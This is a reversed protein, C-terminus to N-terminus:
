LVGADCPTARDSYPRISHENSPISIPMWVAILEPAGITNTWTANAVDVTNGVPPLKGDAGPKRVGSWAVDYAKEQMEGNADVWGKVIQYRDLNAGIPDKLAAVLFTPSKGPQAAGLNGGMPVGKGYGAIAPSRTVADADEFDFGGFFRVLMRPGTTAYTERSEAGHAVALAQPSPTIRWGGM